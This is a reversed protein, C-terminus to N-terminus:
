IAMDGLLVKNIEKFGPLTIEYDVENFVTSAGRHLGFLSYFTGSVLDEAKIYQLFSRAIDGNTGVDTMDIGFITRYLQGSPIHKSVIFFCCTTSIVKTKQIYQGGVALRKSLTETAFTKIDTSYFQSFLKSELLKAYADLRIKTDKFDKGSNRILHLQRVSDKLAGSDVLLESLAYRAQLILLSHDDNFQHLNENLIKLSKEKSGLYKHCIALVIRAKQGVTPDSEVLKADELSKTYQETSLYAMSRLLLNEKNANKNDINFTTLDIVKQYKSRSFYVKALYFNLNTDSQELQYAKKLFPFAADLNKMFYLKEGVRYNAEFHDPNVELVKNYEELAKKHKEMKEFIEAIKIGILVENYKDNFLDRKVIENLHFLAMFFQSQKFYLDYIKYQIEPDMKKNSPLSQLLNLAKEYDEAELLADIKKLKKPFIYHENLFYYGIFFLSFLLFIIFFM